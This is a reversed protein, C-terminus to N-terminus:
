TDSSLGRQQHRADNLMLNVQAYEFLVRISNYGGQVARNVLQEAIAQYM